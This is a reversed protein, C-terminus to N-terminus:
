LDFLVVNIQLVGTGFTSWTRIGVPHEETEPLVLDAQDVVAAGLQGLVGGGEDGEAACACVVPPEEAENGSRSPIGPAVIHGIKHAPHEM